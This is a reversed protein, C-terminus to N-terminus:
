EVNQLQERFRELETKMQIVKQAIELDNTKSGITNVERHM